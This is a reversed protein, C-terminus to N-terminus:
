AHADLASLHIEARWDLCCTVTGSWADQSEYHVRAAGFEVTMADGRDNALYESRDRFFTSVDVTKMADLGHRKNQATPRCRSCALSADADDPVAGAPAGPSPCYFATGVFSPTPPIYVADPIGILERSEEATNTRLALRYHTRALLARGRAGGITQSALVVRIGLNSDLQLMTEVADYLETDERVMATYDDVLVVAHKRDSARRTVTVGL